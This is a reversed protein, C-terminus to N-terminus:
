KKHKKVIELIREKGIISSIGQPSGIITLSGGWGKEIKNLDQTVKELDLYGLEHQCITHKKYYKYKEGIMENNTAVVIPASCYGMELAGRHSSEVYAVGYEQKEIKIEGNYLGRIQAKKKDLAKQKYGDPLVNFELFSEMLRIRLDLELDHDSVVLGMVELDTVELKKPLPKAKWKGQKFKDFNAIDAIRGLSWDILDSQPYQRMLLVSMSGISDLDPRITVVLVNDGHNELFPLELVEEIAAKDLNKQTHQPDINIDCRKALDPITVEIGIIKKWDGRFIQDNNKQAEKNKRPDLLKFIM